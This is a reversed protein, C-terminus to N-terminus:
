ARPLTLCRRFEISEVELGSPFAHTTVGILSWGRSEYFSAANLTSELRLSTAGRDRAADELNRLLATGVGRAVSDPAVYLTNLLGAEPSVAGFGVVKGCDVAVLFVRKELLQRYRDLSQQEVWARIQADSYHPGCVRWISAEHLAAVEGLDGERAPRIELSLGERGETSRM